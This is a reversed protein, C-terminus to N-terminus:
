TSAKQLLKEYVATLRNFQEPTGGKDPHYKNALKKYSKKVDAQSFKASLAFEPVLTNAAAARLHLRAADKEYPNGKSSSGIADLRHQADISVFVQERKQAIAKKDGALVREHLTKQDATTKEAITEFETKLQALRQKRHTSQRAAHQAAYEKARLPAEVDRWHVADDYEKQYKANLKETKGKGLKKKKGPIDDFATLSELWYAPDSQSKGLSLLNKDQMVEYAYKAKAYSDADKVRDSFRNGKEDVGYLKNTAAKVADAHLSEPTPPAVIKAKYWNEIDADSPKDSAYKADIPDKPNKLFSRSRAKQKTL